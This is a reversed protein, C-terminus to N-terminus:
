MNETHAHTPVCAYLYGYINVYSYLIHLPEEM